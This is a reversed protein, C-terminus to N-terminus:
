RSFIGARHRKGDTDTWILETLVGAKTWRRDAPNFLLLTDPQTNSGTPIAYLVCKMTADWACSIASLASVNVNAWFWKDLGVSGDTAAGTPVVQSGDTMHFGDGALFHTVDGVQVAAGRAVLGRKREFPVFSFVVDGGQYTLRTLGLQQFVVGMQPGGAICMIPGFDPTLDEQSSQVAIAADTLPTPWMTPDGIGCWQMRYPVPSGGFMNGVLLFQGIVGLVSGSPLTGGAAPVITAFASGGIAMDQIPDIGNAAIVCGAFNAFSWYTGGGVGGYAGASSSANTFGSGNWHWLDHATGAYIQPVDSSNLVTIAGQAASSLPTGQGAFRGLSRYSQDSWFVNNCDALPIPSPAYQSPITIAADAGDPVWPGFAISYPQAM